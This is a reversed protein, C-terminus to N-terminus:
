ISTAITYFDRERPNGIPVSNQNMDTDMRGTNGLGSQVQWTLWTTESQPHAGLSEGRGRVVLAVPSRFCTGGAWLEFSSGAGLVIVRFDTYLSWATRLGSARPALTTLRWLGPLSRTRASKALRCISVTPSDEARRTWHGCRCILTELSTM